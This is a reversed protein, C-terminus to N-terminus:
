TYSEIRERQKGRRIANSRNCGLPIVHRRMSAAFDILYVMIDDSFRKASKPMM